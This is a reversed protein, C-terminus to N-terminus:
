SQRYSIICPYTQTHTHTHTPTKLLITEISCGALRNTQSLIFFSTGEPIPIIQTPEEKLESMRRPRASVVHSPEIEEEQDEHLISFCILYFFQEYEFHVNQTCKSDIM